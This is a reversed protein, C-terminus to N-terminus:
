GEERHERHGRHYSKRQMKYILTKGVAKKKFLGSRQDPKDFDLVAYKTGM